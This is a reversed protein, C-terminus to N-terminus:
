NEIEQFNKDLMVPHGNIDSPNHTIFIELVMDEKVSCTYIIGSNQFTYWCVEEAINGGGVIVVGDKEGFNYSAIEGEELGRGGKAHWRNKFVPDRGFECIRWLGNKDICLAALYDGRQEIKKITLNRYNRYNFYKGAQKTLADMDKEDASSFWHIGLYCAALFFIGALVIICGKLFARGKGRKWAAAAAKLATDEKVQVNKINISANMLNLEERCKGCEKIHQEVMERSTESCVDDCYLPLLDRILDCSIKM